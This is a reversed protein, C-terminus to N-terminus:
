QCRYYVRRYSDWCQRPQPRPAPTVYGGPYPRSGPTIYGGQSPYSPYSPQGYGYSSQNFVVETSTAERWSGDARSCAISTRRETKQRTVIVSEYERCIERPNGRYYGERTSRLYGSNGSRSGYRYGDWDVQQGIPRYFVDRQADAYARRDADDLARGIDAGVVAGLVIGLGTAVAKGSGGGIQNGLIGGIIAGAIAGADQNDAHAKFSVTSTLLAAALGLSLLKRNM